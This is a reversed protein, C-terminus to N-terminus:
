TSSKKQLSYKKMMSRTTKLRALMPDLKCLVAWIPDKLLKQSAKEHTSNKLYRDYLYYFENILSLKRRDPDIRRLSLKLYKIAKQHDHAISALKTELDLIRSVLENKPYKTLEKIIKDKKM